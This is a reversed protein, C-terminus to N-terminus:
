NIKWEFRPKIYGPERGMYVGLQREGDVVTYTIIDREIFIAKRNDEIIFLALSFNGSQFFHAPFTCGIENEGKKLHLASNGFSFLAEGM